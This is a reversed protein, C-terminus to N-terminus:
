DFIKQMVARFETYVYQKYGYWIYNKDTALKKPILWPRWHTIQYRKYLEFFKFFVWPPTNSKTFNCTEAQLKATVSEM